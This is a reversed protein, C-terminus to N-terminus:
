SNAPPNALDPFPKYDKIFENYHKLSKDKKYQSAVLSYSLEKVLFHQIIITEHSKLDYTMRMSILVENTKQPDDSGEFYTKCDDPFADVIFKDGEKKLDYKSYIASIRDDGFYLKDEETTFIFPLSTDGDKNYMFERSPLSTNFENITKFGFYILGSTGANFGLEKRFEAKLEKTLEEQTKEKEKVPVPNDKSCSSIGVTFLAVSGLLLRHNFERRNM